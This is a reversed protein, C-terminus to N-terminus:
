FDSCIEKERNWIEKGRNEFNQLFVVSIASAELIASDEFDLTWLKAQMRPHEYEFDVFSAIGFWVKRPKLTISVIFDAISFSQGPTTEQASIKAKTARSETAITNDGQAFNMLHKIINM